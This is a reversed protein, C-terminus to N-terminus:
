GVPDGTTIVGPRTVKAYVGFTLDHPTLTRLLDAAPLPPQAHDLMACRVVPATIELEATGITLRRGLWGDEPRDTGPVDIVLNPRVRAWDADLWRLSATTVVHVPGADLHSIPGEEVVTVPQGIVESVAEHVGEDVTALERGDPLGIITHTTTLRRSSMDLLRPLRTFRRTSKGSGFKGNAARVAWRRDDLVGRADVALRDVCEGRLSKVPYRALVAVTGATM